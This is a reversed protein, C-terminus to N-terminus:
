ASDDTPRRTHKHTSAVRKPTAVTTAPTALHKVKFHVETKHKLEEPDGDLVLNYGLSDGTDTVHIEGGTTANSYAVQSIGLIVGLFTDIALITGAVAQPAPLGWLAALAVYLTGLAPFVVQAMWKLGDYLKGTIM